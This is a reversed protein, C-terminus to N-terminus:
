LSKSFLKRELVKLYNKRFNKPGGFFVNESESLGECSLKCRALELTCALDAVQFLRYNAPEVSPIFITQSSFMAFAEKLLMTLQAQGNDYYVKLTDYSSFKDAHAVLFQLIQQLLPDHVNQKNGLLNKDVCFCKYSIDAKRLFAMMRDFIGRREERRMGAYEKERRILPGAHVCHNAELGMNQLAADIKRVNDSIDSSQDHFVMCVMYFRSSSSDPEFSGSEDVFVSIEKTTNKM